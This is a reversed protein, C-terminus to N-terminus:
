SWIVRSSQITTGCKIRSFNYFLCLITLFESENYTYIISLGDHNTKQENSACKRINERSLSAKMLCHTLTNCTSTELMEYIRELKIM